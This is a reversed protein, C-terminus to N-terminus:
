ILTVHAFKCLWMDRIRSNLNIFVSAQAETTLFSIAELLHGESLRTEYERQVLLIALEVKNLPTTSSGGQQDKLVSVLLDIAEDTASRNTRVRKRAPELVASDEQLPVGRTRTRHPVQRFTSGQISPTSSPRSISPTSPLQSSSTALLIPNSSRVFEGTASSISFL